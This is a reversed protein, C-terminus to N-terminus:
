RLSLGRRVRAALLPDIRVVEGDRELLAGRKSIWVDTSDGTWPSAIRSSSLVPIWLRRVKAYWRRWVAFGHVADVTPRPGAPDVARSGAVAYLQLYSQPDQARREGVIVTEIRPLPYPRVGDTAARLAAAVRAPLRAWVARTVPEATRVEDVARVYFAGPVISAGGGQVVLELQYYPAPAAPGTRARVSASRMPVAEIVSPDLVSGCAQPGCLELAYPVANPHTAGLLAATAVASTWRTGV